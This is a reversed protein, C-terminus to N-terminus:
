ALEITVFGYAVFAAAALLLLVLRTASLRLALRRSRDSRARALLTATVGLSSILVVAATFFALARPATLRLSAGYDETLEPLLFGVGCLGLSVLFTALLDFALTIAWGVPLRRVPRPRQQAAM